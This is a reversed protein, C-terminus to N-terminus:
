HSAMTFISQNQNLMKLMESIINQRNPYRMADLRKPLYNLIVDRFDDYTLNNFSRGSDKIALSLLGIGAFEKQNTLEALKFGFTYIPDM